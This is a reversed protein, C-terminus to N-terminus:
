APDKTRKRRAAAQRAVRLISIVPPSPRTDVRPIWYKMFIHITVSLQSNLMDEHFEHHKAGLDTKIGLHSQKIIM